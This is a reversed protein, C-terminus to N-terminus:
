FYVLALWLGIVVWGAVSIGRLMAYANRALFWRSAAFFLEQLLFLIILVKTIKLRYYGLDRYRDGYTRHVAVWAKRLKERAESVEVGARLSLSAQAGVDFQVNIDRSDRQVRLPGASTPIVLSWNEFNDWHNMAASSTLARNEDKEEVSWVTAMWTARPPHEVVIAPTPMPVLDVSLWGFWEADGNYEDIQFPDSGLFFAILSTGHRPAELRYAGATKDIALNVAPHTRWVTRTGLGELSDASDIVAYVRGDIGVVQRRVRYGPPGTREIDIATVRKNWGYYRVRVARDSKEPEGIFHPANSGDWSTAVSRGEHDYPWYGVNTWWTQGAAWFLVSLEDASKHGHGAFNSWTVVTQSAETANPWRHLGDWWVAYGAVPYISRAHPRNWNIKTEVKTVR